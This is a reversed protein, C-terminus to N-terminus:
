LLRKCNCQALLLRTEFTVILLQQSKVCRFRSAIKLCVISSPEPFKIYRGGGLIRIRPTLEWLRFAAAEAAYGTRRIRWRM